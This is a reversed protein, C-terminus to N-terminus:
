WEVYSQAAVLAEFCESSAQHQSEAQSPSRIIEPYATIDSELASSVDLGQSCGGKLSNYLTILDGRLRRKELSFVGLERLQKEDSKNELNKGLETARRQGRDLMEIGKKCQSAGFQVCSQLHPGVLASCGGTKWSQVPDSGGDWLVAGSGLGACGDERLGQRRAREM